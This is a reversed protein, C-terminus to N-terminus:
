YNALQFRLESFFVNRQTIRSVLNNIKNYQQPNNAPRFVVPQYFLLETEWTTKENSIIPYITSNSAVIPTAPLPIEM